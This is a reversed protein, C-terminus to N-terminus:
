VRLMEEYLECYHKHMQSESFLERARLRGVQGWESRMAPDQALRLIAEALGADDGAPTLWGTTGPVVVEPLGGVETAVVPLGALMAEIVTLPIGESISTLLFVDAAALVRPVDKQLGLFRVQTALGRQRVAEVIKEKEPGEGVLILRAQPCSGVVRELARVATGHDKLYDLRAVQLIALDQGTLGIEQRAADRDHLGRDFLNVDIGNYIVQIRNPPFGENDILARRVAQGVAVIRDRPRLLLRNALMRKRRPYDPFHRGHETFLV